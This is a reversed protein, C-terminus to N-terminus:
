VMSEAEYLCRDSDHHGLSQDLLPLVIAGGVDVASTLSFIHFFQLHEDGDAIQKLHVQDRRLGYEFAADLLDREVHDLVNRVWDGLM